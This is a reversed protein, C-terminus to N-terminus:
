DSPWTSSPTTIVATAGVVARIAPFYEVIDTGKLAGAWLRWLKEILARDEPNNPCAFHWEQGITNPALIYKVQLGRAHAMDIAQRMTKAFDAYTGDQNLASKYVTPELWYEFCTFGFAKIMDLLGAFENGGWRNDAGAHMMNANWSNLLHSAFNVYYSRHKFVGNSM